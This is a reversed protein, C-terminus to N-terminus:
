PKYPINQNGNALKIVLSHRTQQLDNLHIKFVLEIKKKETNVSHNKRVLVAAQQPPISKTRQASIYFHFDSPDSPIAKVRLILTDVSIQYSVFEIGSTDKLNETLNNVMQSELFIPKIEVLKNRHIGCSIFLIICCVPIILKM